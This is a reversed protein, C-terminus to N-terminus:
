RTIILKKSEITKNNVELSYIYIGNGFESLEIEILSSGPLLKYSKVTSGFMDTIRLAPQSAKDSLKYIVTTKGSSPNPIAAILKSIQNESPSSSLNNLNMLRETLSTCTRDESAESLLARYPSSTNLTLSHSPDYYYTMENGGTHLLQHNTLTSASIFQNGTGTGPNGQNKLTTGTSYIGYRTYDVFANCFIDLSSHNDDRFLICTDSAYFLNEVIQSNYNGCDSTKLSTETEIFENAAITFAEISSLRLGTPCNEIVSSSVLINDTQYAQVGIAANAIRSTTMTFQNASNNGSIKLGNWTIGSCSHLNSGTIILKGGSAVDIEANSGFMVEATDITLTIGNPVSLRGTVFASDKIRTNSSLTASNYHNSGTEGSNACRLSHNPFNSIPGGPEYSVCRCSKSGPFNTYSPAAYTSNNTMNYVIVKRLTGCGDFIFLRTENASLTATMNSWSSTMNLKVGVDPYSSPYSSTHSINLTHTTNDQNMLMVSIKSCSKSSFSKVNTNTTVGMYFNSGSPFGETMMQTHYFTSRYQPSTHLGHIFGLDGQDADGNSEHLSWPMMFAVPAKGSPTNLGIAYMEALWQGAIFGNSGTNAYTNNTSPTPNAYCINLETVAIKLNPNSNNVNDIYNRINSLHTSFSSVPHAIIQSTNTVGTLPYIHFSIIDCVPKTTSATNATIKENSQGKILKDLLDNASSHPSALDPGIIIANPDTIKVVDAIKKFYSAIDSATLATTITSSFSEASHYLDPENAISYYRVNYPAAKLTSVISAISATYTSNSAHTSTVSGTSVYDIFYKNLFSLQVIPTIGLSNCTVVFHTYQSITPLNIDHPTGGYRLTKIGIAPVATTTFTYFKGDVFDDIPPNLNNGPSSSTGVSGTM